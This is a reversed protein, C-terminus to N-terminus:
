KKSRLKSIGYIIGAAFLALVGGDIPTIPPPPPPPGLAFAVDTIIVLSFFLIAKLYKNAMYKKKLKLLSNIEIINCIYLFTIFYIVIRSFIKM